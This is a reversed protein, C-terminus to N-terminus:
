YSGIRKGNDKDEDDDTKEVGFAVVDLIWSWWVMVVWFIRVVWIQGVYMGLKYSRLGPM